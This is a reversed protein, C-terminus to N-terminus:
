TYFYPLTKTFCNVYALNIYTTPIFYYIINTFTFINISLLRLSLPPPSGGAGLEARELCPYEVSLEIVSFAREAVQAMGFFLDFVSSSHTYCEVYIICIIYRM